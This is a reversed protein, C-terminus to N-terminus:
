SWSYIGELRLNINGIDQIRQLVSGCTKETSHLVYDGSDPFSFFVGVHGPRSHGLEQMLVLDGNAPSDSKGSVKADALNRVCAQGRTGRPRSQPLEVNRGFLERQVLVVLDACDSEDASYPIGIFRDLANAKM